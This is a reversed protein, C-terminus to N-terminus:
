RQPLHTHAHTRTHPAGSRYSSPSSATNANQTLLERPPPTMTPIFSQQQPSNRPQKTRGHSKKYYLLIRYILIKNQSHSFFAFPSSFRLKFNFLKSQIPRPNDTAFVNSATKNSTASLSPPGFYTNYPRQDPRACHCSRSRHPTLHIVLFFHGTSFFPSRTWCLTVTWDKSAPSCQQRFCCRNELACLLVSAPHTKSERWQPRQSLLLELDLSIYRRFISPVPALSSLEATHAPKM